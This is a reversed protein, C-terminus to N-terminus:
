NRATIAIAEAPDVPGLSRSDDVIEVRRMERPQTHDFRRGRHAVSRNDYLLLDGAGWAHSYVHDPHGIHEILEHTLARGQPVSMGDIRTVKSDCWLLKRRSGPHTRVMPWRVPTFARREDDSDAIKLWDRTNHSWFVATRGELDVRTDEDLTDYAARLDAFQTEGGKGAATVANLISYCIPQDKYSGDSHWFRNGITTITQWHTPGAVNGDADLNSIDTVENSGLRNQVRTTLRTQLTTDIEGFANGFAILEDKDLPQDPFVLVGFRDCAAVIAERDGLSLPQRLDIGTVIAVFEPYVATIDLATKIRQNM